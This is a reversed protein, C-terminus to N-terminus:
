KRFRVIYLIVGESNPDIAEIGNDPEIYLIDGNTRIVCDGLQPSFDVQGMLGKIGGSGIDTGAIKALSTALSERHIPVFAMRVPHDIPVTTVPKAITGGSATISRWICAEGKANIMRKASAIQTDYVGM